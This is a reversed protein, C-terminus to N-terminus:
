SLLDVARSTNIVSKFFRLTWFYHPATHIETNDIIKRFGPM